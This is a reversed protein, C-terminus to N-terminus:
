FTLYQAVNHVDVSSKAIDALSFSGKSYIDWMVSMKSDFSLPEIFSDAPMETAKLGDNIGSFIDDAFSYVGVTTILLPLIPNLGEPDVSNVPDGGVYVYPNM